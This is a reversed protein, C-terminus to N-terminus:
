RKANYLRQRYRQSYMDPRFRNRVLRISDVYVDGQLNDGFVIAGCIRRATKATDAIFIFDHWGDGTFQGTLVEIAGDIYDACLQWRIVSRNNTFHARWAYCDGKDWNQDREYDFSVVSTPSTRGIAFGSAGNWVDVSDGAVITATNATGIASSNALRDKLIEETREYVKIYKDIHAGYWMMSTDVLQQTLHHRELIAQKLAQRVSDNSYESYNMEVASEGVYIDALYQSMDEPQVIDGPVKRCATVLLAVAIMVNIFQRVNMKYSYLAVDPRIPM